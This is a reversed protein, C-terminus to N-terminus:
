KKQSKYEDYIVRSSNEGQKFFATKVWCTYNLHYDLTNRELTFPIYHKKLVVGKPSLTALSKLGKESLGPLEAM